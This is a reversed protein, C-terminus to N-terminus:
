AALARANTFPTSAETLILAAGIVLIERGVFLGSIAGIIGIVHHFLTQMM